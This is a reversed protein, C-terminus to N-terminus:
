QWSENIREGRVIQYVAINKDVLRRVIDPICQIPIALEYGFKQRKISKAM